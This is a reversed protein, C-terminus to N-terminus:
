KYSIFGLDQITMNFGRGYLMSKWMTVALNFFSNGVDMVDPNDFSIPTSDGAYEKINVYGEGEYTGTRGYDVSYYVYASTEGRDLHMELYQDTLSDKCIMRVTGSGARHYVETQSKSSPTIRHTMFYGESTTIGTNDIYDAFRDFMYVSGPELGAVVVTFKVKESNYSNTVTVTTTGNKKGYLYLHTKNNNDYWGDEWECELIDPNAVRFYVNYGDKLFTIVASADPEAKISKANVSLVNKVTVKCTLKKKGFKATITAKGAKKAQVVGNKSVTAIKKASTSWKIKQSTNKVQLKLTDGIYLTAKKKSLKPSAAQVSSALGIAAAFFLFLLLVRRFKKM